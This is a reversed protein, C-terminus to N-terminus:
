CVSHALLGTVAIDRLCLKENKKMDFWKRELWDFIDEKMILPPGCFITFLFFSCHQLAHYFCSYLLLLWIVNVTFVSTECYSRNVYSCCDKLDGTIFFCLGNLCKSSLVDYVHRCM